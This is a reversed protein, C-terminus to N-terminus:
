PIKLVQGPQVLNPDGIGNAGALDDVTLDYLSAIESLTEGPAITHERRSTIPKASASTATSPVILEQGVSIRNPDSIGNASILSDESVGYQLAITGLTDGAAAVHVKNSPKNGASATSSASASRVLETPRSTRLHQGEAILNPDEISNITVLEDVDMGLKEAIGELTDGSKVIYESSSAPKSASTQAPATRSPEASAGRSAETPRRTDKLKLIQGPRIHDPDDIGNVSILINIPVGYKQSIRYLTEGPQVVHEDPVASPSASPTLTPSPKPSPKPSPQQTPPITASREPQVADPGPVVDVSVRIMMKKPDDLILFAAYSLDVLHNFGGRDRVQVTVSKGNAPNTVRLWTGFPWRNAATTTPDYMDYVQGNAM